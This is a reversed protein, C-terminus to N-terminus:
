QAPPPPNTEFSLAGPQRIFVGANNPGDAKCDIYFYDSGIQDKLQQLINDPIADEPWILVAAIDNNRLFALPDPMTGAFFENSQKDRYEAEGGHGCQFEQYYWAIYCRNESFGVISPAQNYAYASKGSLVTVGHLNQLVQLLRKKQPDYRFVTDGRLHFATYQWNAQDVSITAWAVFFVAGIFIFVATLFRFVTERQIFVLPLFTVLGAGYAAGWMKEVTLTRDGFTFVEVFILLLPVAAHLWRAMLGLRGWVFLLATWPVIVPWWQIIFELLPTHEAWPTLHFDIPYTGAILSNVSPWLLGLALLSGGLVIKWDQPRRGALLAAAFCGACLIVIVVIFWTATIITMLPFILLCIWPWNSRETKFAENAALLSALTMFHGGLNAHFEPFYTNFAPTFLRLGPPANHFISGFPNHRGPDNWGDGIDIALRSDFVVYGIHPHFAGWILLFLSSGTFDALLVLLTAVCVWTRKGSISYAAGAGVLLTLTNLLNYGMNYGTGIDLSFLRKLISAGYHQFSYYGGHDYPPCWSDTPPLKDGLCFDLVRAMDPVGETNCTIEPNLCRVFLAWTFVAVFLISPLRLGEWSYGPRAMAWLLGLLTFPLLWGLNPLAIFHEIFNLASMVILIPVIFALWPSERPFLRRFLVAGGIVHFCVLLELLGARLLLM